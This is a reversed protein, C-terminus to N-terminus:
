ERRARRRETAYKARYRDWHTISGGLRALVPWAPGGPTFRAALARLAGELAPGDLPGRLRLAVATSLAATGTQVGGAFWAPYPRGGEPVPQEARIGRPLMVTDGGGRGASTM